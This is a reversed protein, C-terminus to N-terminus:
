FWVGIIPKINAPAIRWMDYDDPSRSTEIRTNDVDCYAHISPIIIWHGFWKVRATGLCLLIKSQIGLVKLKRKLRLSKVVCNTHLFTFPEQRLEEALHEVINDMKRMEEMRVLGKMIADKRFQEKTVQKVILKIKRIM